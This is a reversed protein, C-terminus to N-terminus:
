VTVPTKTSAKRVDLPPVNGDVSPVVLVPCPARKIVGRTTAGIASDRSGTHGHSGMVIFDAACKRAQELIDQAPTGTLRLSQTAVGKLQLAARVRALHKDAAEEMATSLDAMHQMELDYGVAAHPLRVVHLLMVSGNFSRAMEAASDLVQATAASFDIAALITKM